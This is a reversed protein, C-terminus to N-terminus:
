GFRVETKEASLADGIARARKKVDATVSATMRRFPTVTIQLTRNKLV